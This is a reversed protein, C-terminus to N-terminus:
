FWRRSAMSSSKFNPSLQGVLEMTILLCVSVCVYMCVFHGIYLSEASIGHPWLVSKEMRHLGHLCSRCMETLCGM